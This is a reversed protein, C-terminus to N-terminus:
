PREGQDRDVEEALQRRIIKGTSTRPVRDAFVIRRPLANASFATKLHQFVEGQGRQPSVVVATVAEGDVPDAVALCAADVVGDLRLLAREMEELSVAEGRVKAMNKTRGTIVLLSGPSEPSEVEYGLDGSHFWGGRFAEETAEANGAYRSMVNHGRMRIEGIEGPRARDGSDTFVAVENGYVATGISPIDTDLMLRRYEDESLGLPVTTSFNTTETLGYGQVIRVGFTRRVEACTRASLPAAATLFYEFGSPLRPERWTHLLSDLVSPVASAFRPRYREVLGPYQFPSFSAALVTHAGSFLPSFLTTHVGNAHHIPLFGLIREGPRVRHHRGFAEANAAGNRHTQAVIKSAATSGSTGFLLADAGARVEPLDSGDPADPLLSPDPVTVAGPLPDRERLVAPPCLVTVASQSGSQQLAREAPDGPNLLLCSAGARLVGFLTAISIPENLPMLAVVDGPAIALERRLWRGLRASWADLRGFTLVTETGDAAVATLYPADPMDQVRAALAALVTSHRGTYRDSPMGQYTHVAAHDQEPGTM